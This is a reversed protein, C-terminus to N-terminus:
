KLEQIESETISGDELVNAILFSSVFNISANPYSASVQNRQELSATDSVYVDQSSSDYIFNQGIEYQAFSKASSLTILGIILFLMIKKM